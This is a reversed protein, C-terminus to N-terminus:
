PVVGTQQANYNKIYEALELSRKFNDLDMDELAIMTRVLELDAEANKHEANAMIDEIKALRETSESNLQDKRAMDVQAEAYKKMIDANLRQEERQAQVEQQKQQAEAQQQMEELTEKKDAFYASRVISSDSIPVGAEKMYLKQQLENQRQTTTFTGQEVAINYKLAVSSFFKPDPEHGLISTVKGKTFNKRMAQLVIKGYIQQSYDLKDFITQLTTLGAGQRLMSLIGAKDDTASGLLEENVGSIKTIDESLARSLEMMSQPITPPDIRQIENPLHGAKLPIVYGQGNQRLAKPDTIADIPYIWGSNVQSELIDLEIVKRRNYLYQADRLNRVIGRLKWQYSQLEPEHYCLVPAFPYDDIKLLNDGHYITKGSLVIGLKVTPVTMEKLELWPQMQMIRKLEDESEDKESEWEIAEGSIPDLLMKAQRTDRYHFEDYTMLNSAQLNLLEAQLPFRGDKAGTPAIKDIENAYSPLLAKAATKNVWRRRWIFSCDSLDQKKYYPDILVDCYSVKDTFLDGSYPDYTYDPYVHMLSLGTDCAGEFAQSFYEHFGNRNDIWKLVGTYDEALQDNDQNPAVITSKRNKRQYGAVMNVHRMIMNFFFRRAQYYQNDGYLVSWLTQDGVKFRKDIAGQQWYAANQPYAYQYSQDMRQRLEKDGEIVPYRGGLSYNNQQYSGM